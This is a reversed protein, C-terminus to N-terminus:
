RVKPLRAGDIHRVGFGLRGTRKVNGKGDNTQLVVLAIRQSMRLPLTRRSKSPHVSRVMGQVLRPM